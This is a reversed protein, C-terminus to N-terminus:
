VIVFRDLNAPATTLTDYTLTKTTGNYSSIFTAQGTLAATVNGEWKLQLGKLMDNTAYTASLSTTCQTTSLTGTIATGFVGCDAVRQLYDAANTSEDISKINVDLLDTDSILSNYVQATLVQYVDKTAFQSAVFTYIELMGGTNTDTADLTCHHLGGSIHTSGGSNKSTLSTGNHKVLKIDTNALATTYPTTGDAAAVIPGIRIVQGTGSIKLFRAM